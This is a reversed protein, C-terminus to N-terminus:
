AEEKYPLSVRYIEEPIPILAGEKIYALTVFAEALLEEDRFIKHHWTSKYRSLISFQGSITLKDGMFAPKKYKIKIESVVIDIRDKHLNELYFGMKELFYTRADELYHLYEANNVHGYSDIHYNKVKLDYYLINSM